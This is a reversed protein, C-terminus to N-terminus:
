RKEGKAAEDEPECRSPAEGELRELFAKKLAAGSDGALAGQGCGLGRAITGAAALGDDGADLLVLSVLSESQKMDDDSLKPVSGVLLVAEFRQAAAKLVDLGATADGDLAVLVLRAPTEAAFAIGQALSAPDRVAVRVAVIRVGGRGAAALAVDTGRGGAAFPRPDRDVADWTIAEGEGDRALLKALGPTTYDFGDALVAVATGGPDQGPALPPDDAHAASGASLALLISLVRRATM